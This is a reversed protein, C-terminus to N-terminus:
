RSKGTKDRSPNPVSDPHSANPASDRSGNAMCVAALRAPTSAAAQSVEAKAAACSQQDAFQITNTTVAGTSTVILIYLTWM